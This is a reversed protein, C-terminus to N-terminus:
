ICFCERAQCGVLDWADVKQIADRIAQQEVNGVQVGRVQENAKVIGDVKVQVLPGGMQLRDRRTEYEESGDSIDMSESGSNSERKPKRLTQGDPQAPGDKLFTPTVSYFHLEGDSGDIDAQDSAMTKRKKSPSKSQPTPIADEEAEVESGQKKAKPTRPAKTPKQMKAADGLTSGTIKLGDDGEFM